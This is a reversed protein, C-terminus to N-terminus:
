APLGRAAALEFFRNRQAATSFGLDLVCPIGRSAVSAATRWIQANCREVREMSWQTDIPQPADMWFFATMWEDISFRVAGLQDALRRSYTTKGAGCSGCILHILHDSIPAGEVM